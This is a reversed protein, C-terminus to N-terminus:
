HLEFVPFEQISKKKMVFRYYQQIYLFIDLKYELIAQMLFQVYYGTKEYKM